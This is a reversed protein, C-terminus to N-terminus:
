RNPPCWRCVHEVAFRTPAKNRLHIQVTRSQSDKITFNHKGALKQDPHPCCESPIRLYANSVTPDFNAPLARDGDVIEQDELCWKPPSSDSKNGGGCAITSQACPTALVVAQQEVEVKPPRSALHGTRSRKAVPPTESSDPSLGPENPALVVCDKLAQLHIDRSAGTHRALGRLHQIHKKLLAGDALARSIQNNQDGGYVLMLKDLQIM